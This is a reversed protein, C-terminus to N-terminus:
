TGSINKTPGHSVDIKFLKKISISQLYKCCHKPDSENQYPYPEPDPDSTVKLETFRTKM